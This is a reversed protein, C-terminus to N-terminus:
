PHTTIVGTGSFTHGDSLTGSIYITVQQDMSVHATMTSCNFLIEFELAYLYPPHPNVREDEPGKPVGEATYGDPFTMTATVSSSVIDNTTHGGDGSSLDGQLKEFSFEVEYQLECDDARFEEFHFADSPITVEVPPPPPPAGGPNGYRLVRNNAFDVVWVNDDGDIAASHPLCLSKAGLGKRNCGNTSFDPKGFVVDAAADTTLPSYFELMRSNAYDVVYLNGMLDVAVGIPSSLSQDSPATVGKGANAIISQFNPQGIVHDASTDCTSCSGLPNDYELVRNNRFDAVYVNGSGDVTVDYPQNLGSAGLGAATKTFDSQGIVRDAVGDTKLPTDYELIRNNAMDAVYVNGAGDISVAFPDCLSNASAVFPQPNSCGATAFKPQGIVQDATTDTTFPSYYVLLRSNGRDAVYLNGAGDVGIGM